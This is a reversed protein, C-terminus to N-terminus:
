SPFCVDAFRANLERFFGRVRKDVNEMVKGHTDGGLMAFCSKLAQVRNEVTPREYAFQIREMCLPQLAYM